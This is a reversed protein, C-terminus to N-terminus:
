TLVEQAVDAQEYEIVFGYIEAQENPSANIVEITCGRGYGDIQFTYPALKQSIGLTSTGLIFTSGILHGGGLGNISFSQVPQNDIQVNVTYTYNSKPTFLLSISKFAKVTNLSGDPYVSGTKIRYSIATSSFDSYTGNQAKVIRSASTGIVLQDTSTSDVRLALATCDVDPWRYWEKTTVNYLYIANNTTEGEETVAFAVSSINPIYVAQMNSLKSQEFSKFTNQIKASVYGAEFDGLSDTASLSHIGRRSAFVVDSMDVAAVSKQSVVGLGNTIPSISFEEPSYGIVQHLRKSKGIVLRGRFTPFIASIGTPDGDGVAIPIKGFDGTLWEEPNNTTTYQISDLDDNDVALLRGLHEGLIKTDPPTGGLVAYQSSTPPHYKQPLNGAGSVCAIYRNNLVKSDASTVPGTPVTGATTIERRNGSSDFEFFKPQATVAILLQTKTGSSVYWYDRLDLIKQTRTIVTSTAATASESLSGVGTYTITDNTITTTTITAVAVEDINYSSSGSSAVSIKEGVVLKQNTPASTSVSAAFVITRTTGSSARTLVAPLEINDFYSLGERKIRTGSTSFTVNDCVVLDNDNLFGPDVSDNLGGTWPAKIYHQTRRQSM